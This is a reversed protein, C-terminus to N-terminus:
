RGPAVSQYTNHVVPSRGDSHRAHASWADGTSDVPVRAISAPSPSRTRSPCAHLHCSLGNIAGLRSTEHVLHRQDSAARRRASPSPSQGAAVVGVRVKDRRALARDTIAGDIAPHLRASVRAQKLRGSFPPDGTEIQRRALGPAGTRSSARGTVSLRRDPDSIKRGTGRNSRDDNKQNRRGHLQSIGARQLSGHSYENASLQVNSRRVPRGHSKGRRLERAGEGGSQEAEYVTFSPGEDGETTRRRRDSTRARRSAPRKHVIRVATDDEAHAPRRLHRFSKDGPRREATSDVEERGANGCRSQRTTSAGGVPPDRARQVRHVGSEAQATRAPRAIPVRHGVLRRDREENSIVDYSVKQAGRIAIRRTVSQAFVRRVGGAAPPDRHSARTTTQTRPSCSVQAERM